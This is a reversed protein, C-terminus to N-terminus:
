RWQDAKAPSIIYVIITFFRQGVGSCPTFKWLWALRIRETKM